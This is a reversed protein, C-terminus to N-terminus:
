GSEFSVQVFVRYRFDSLLWEIADDSSTTPLEGIAYMIIENGVVSKPYDKNKLFLLMGVPDRKAFEAFAMKMLEVITRACSEQHVHPFWSKYKNWYELSLREASFAPTEKCIEIFLEYVEILM